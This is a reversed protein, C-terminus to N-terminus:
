YKKNTIDEVGVMILDDESVEYDDDEYEVQQQSMKKAIMLLIPKINISENLVFVKFGIVILAIIILPLLLLFILYVLTKLVYNGISKKTKVNSNSDKGLLQKDNKCNCSM